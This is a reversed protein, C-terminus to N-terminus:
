AVLHSVRLLTIVIGITLVIFYGPEVPIVQLLIGIDEVIELLDDFETSLMLHQAILIVESM